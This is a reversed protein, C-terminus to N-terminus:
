LSTRSVEVYKGDYVELNQAIYIYTYCLKLIQLKYYLTVPHNLMYERRM